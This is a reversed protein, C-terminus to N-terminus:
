QQRYPTPPPSLRCAEEGGHVTGGPLDSLGERGELSNCSWRLCPNETDAKVPPYPNHVIQERNDM